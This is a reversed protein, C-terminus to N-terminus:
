KFNKTPTIETNKLVLKETDRNHQLMDAADLALTTIDGKFPLPNEVSSHTILKELISLLSDTTVAAKNGAYLIDLSNCELNERFAALKQTLTAESWQRKIVNHCLTSLSNTAMDLDKQRMKREKDLQVYQEPTLNILQDRFRTKEKSSEVISQTDQGIWGFQSNSNESSDKQEDSLELLRSKNSVLSNEKPEKNDMKCYISHPKLRLTKKSIDTIQMHQFVTIMLVVFLLFAEMLFYPSSQIYITAAHCLHRHYTKKLIKVLSDM